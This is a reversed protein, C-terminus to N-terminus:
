SNNFCNNHKHYSYIIIKYQIIDFITQGTAILFIIATIIHIFLYYNEVTNHWVHQVIYSALARFLVWLVLCVVAHFTKFLPKSQPETSFLFHSWHLNTDYRLNSSCNKQYNVSLTEFLESNKRFFKISLTRTLLYFWVTFTNPRHHLLCYFDSTM